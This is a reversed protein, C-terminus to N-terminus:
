TSKGDDSEDKVIHLKTRIQKPDNKFPTTPQTGEHEAIIESITKTVKVGDNDVSGVKMDVGEALIEKFLKIKDEELTKINAVLDKKWKSHSAGRNPGDVNAWMALQSEILDEIQLMIKKIKVYSKKRIVPKKKQKDAELEILITEFKSVMDRIAKKWVRRTMLTGAIFGLTFGVIIGIGIHMIM